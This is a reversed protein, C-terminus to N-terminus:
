THAQLLYQKSIISSRPYQLNYTDMNIVVHQVRYQIYRLRSSCIAFNMRCVSACLLTPSTPYFVTSKEGAVGYMSISRDVVFRDTKSQSRRGYVYDDTVRDKSATNHRYWTTEFCDLLIQCGHNNEAISSWNTGLLTMNRCLKSSTFPRNQLRHKRQLSRLWRKTGFTVSNHYEKNFVRCFM